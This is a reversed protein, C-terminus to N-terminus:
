VAEVKAEIKASLASIVVPLSKYGRIRNFRKEAEFLATAAWRQVQEGNRWRKVNSVIDRTISFCSEIVNTSSLTRRLVEPVGLKHLTLTEELGEELSRAASPNLRELDRVLSQLSEKADNYSSMNYAARMRQDVWRQHEPPLHEKVNRRKHVQCRQIDADGGFVRSLAARLGKSGDIVWLYRRETSLGRKLMDELLGKCIYMNETAGQWLGLIHKKGDGDIGLAVVLLHGKFEIGDIVIVCLSLDGLPREMLEKLSQRTAKILHRSISSKDIGYGSCLDEIVEKYHRLSVGRIVRKLVARQMKGDQQFQRYTSLSFEKNTKDRVRPREIRAKRGAFIVYGPQSGWRYRPIGDRAYSGGCLRAVEEDIIAKMILLGVRGALAEVEVEIGNVMEKLPLPLNVEGLDIGGGIAKKELIQYEGKM